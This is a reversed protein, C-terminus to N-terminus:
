PTIKTPEFKLTGIVDTPASIVKIRSSRPILLAVAPIIVVNGKIANAIREGNAGLIEFRMTISLVIANDNTTKNIHIINREIVPGIVDTNSIIVKIRLSRSIILAVSTIIVVIGKIANAIREGNAGLIEFRMPISLVIANDKTTKNIPIINREIVPILRNNIPVAKIRRAIAIPLTNIGPIIFIFKGNFIPKIVPIYATNIFMNPAKPEPRLTGIDDIPFRPQRPASAIQPTSVTIAKSMQSGCSRLDCLTVDSAVSTSVLSFFLRKREGSAQPTVSNIPPCDNP